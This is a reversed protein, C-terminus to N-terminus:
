SQVDWSALDNSTILPQVSFTFKQGKAVDYAIVGRLKDGAGVTGNPPTGANTDTIAETYKQGSSDKLTFSILSSVNIPSSTTNEVTVDIELFTGHQPAAYTSGQSDKVSNITVKWGDITVPTGIANKKAVPPQTPTPTPTAQSSTNKTTSGSALSTSTNDTSGCASLIGIILLILGLLTLKNKMNKNEM